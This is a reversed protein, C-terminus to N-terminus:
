ETTVIIKGKLILITHEAQSVEKHSKEILQPFHHLINQQELQKLAIRAKAPFKKQIEKLSFPLNQYKEHVYQLIKRATSDRPTKLNEIKYINSPKGEYVKGQGYTSFPEIAYAGEPLNNFNNNAHNPITIGSHLNYKDLGHGSLNVVPSFGQEQISDQIKEGIENLSAKPNEKILKLVNKLAYESAQILQKHKNNETLDTSFATDAICGKIQVGIDIKLLGSAKTKDDLDPSYHAAIDDISLNVPFALEGQLERIKAEIKEAIDLLLMNPKIFSKAYAVVQKAIQGAKEYNEIEKQNM